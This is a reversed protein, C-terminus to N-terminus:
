PHNGEILRGTNREVQIARDDYLLSMNMDKTATIELDRGLHKLCWASLKATQDIKFELDDTVGQSNTRGCGAVRATFIRCEIGASLYAKITQVMEPIPEGLPLTNAETDWVVTQALTGDFDFGVWCGPWEFFYPSIM